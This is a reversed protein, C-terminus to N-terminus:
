CIQIQLGLLQPLPSLFLTLVLALIKKMSSFQLGVYELFEVLLIVCLVESLYMMILNNFVLSFHLILQLFFNWQLSHSCKKGGWLIHILFRPMVDKLTSLSFFLCVFLFGTSTSNLFIWFLHSFIKESPSFILSNTAPIGTKYSINLVLPCFLNLLPGM